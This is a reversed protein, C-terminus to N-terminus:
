TKTPHSVLLYTYMM